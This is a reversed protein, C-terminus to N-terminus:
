GKGYKLVEQVVGQVSDGEDPIIPTHSKNTSKPLLIRRGDRRKDYYKITVDDGLLAVVRDGTEAKQQQRCLVLDGHKIGVLNMSDGEARVIFYKFGPKIKIKEVQIYEGINKEGFMPSGCPASGLLPIDVYQIPSPAQKSLQIPSRLSANEERSRTSKTTTMAISKTESLVKKFYNRLPEDVIYVYTGLIGRTLLTKYINIIYRKLEDHEPVSRKGNVDMYKDADVVIEQKQEDFMIEPGIIVGTYNLDYGQITHICGVENKANPSNPWDHTVSNWFLKTNGIVIDPKSTNNRSVWKWAYGAVMRSLTHETDRAKIDTVMASLDDYIGFDYDKFSEPIMDSEELLNEIFQIYQEGGKVRMQTKLEFVFPKTAHVREAPIDSPRVSQKEDFFLIVQKASALVWDLETGTNDLGFAKNTKDFTEYNTINKRQRLRHTEDVILVDYKKNTVENPGIVMSSSLQPIGRFVKQLTKRLSTMAIVLAVNTNGKEVLQKVLYTALITKGTGPGGRIVYTAAKGEEIEKLLTTAILYQDDTRKHL